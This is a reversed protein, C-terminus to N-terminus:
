SSEPRFFLIRSFDSVAASECYASIPFGPIWHFKLAVDQFRNIHLTYCATWGMQKLEQIKEPMSKGPWPHIYPAESLPHGYRDAAYSSIVLADARAVPQRTNPDVTYYIVPHMPGRRKPLPIERALWDADDALKILTDIYSPSGYPNSYPPKIEGKEMARSVMAAAGRYAIELPSNRLRRRRAQCLIPLACARIEEQTPKVLSRINEDRMFQRLRSETFARYPRGPEVPEDEAPEPRTPKAVTEEVEPPPPSKREQTKMKPLPM